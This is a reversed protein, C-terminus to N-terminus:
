NGELPEQRIEPLVVDDPLGPLVQKLLEPSKGFGSGDLFLWEQSAGGKVGVYYSTSRIKKGQMSFVITVPVFCVTEKGAEWTRSPEGLKTEEVKLGTEAISKMADKAMAEFPEKGGALEHIAPHTMGIITDVEGKKFGEVMTTARTILTKKDDAGLEGASLSLATCFLLALATLRRIM